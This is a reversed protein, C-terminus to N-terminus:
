TYKYNEWQHILVYVHRCVYVFGDETLSYRNRVTSVSREVRRETGHTSNSETKNKKESFRKVQGMMDNQGETTFFTIYSSVLVQM